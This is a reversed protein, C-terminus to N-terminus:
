TLASSCLSSVAVRARMAPKSRSPGDTYALRPNDSQTMDRMREGSGNVATGLDQVPGFRGVRDDRKKQVDTDSARALRGGSGTPLKGIMRTQAAIGPRGKVHGTHLDHAALQCPQREIHGGLRWASM